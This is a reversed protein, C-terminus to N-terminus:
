QPSQKTAKTTVQWSPLRHFGDVTVERRAMVWEKERGSNGLAIFRDYFRFRFRPKQVPGVSGPERLRSKEDRAVM